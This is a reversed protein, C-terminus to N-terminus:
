SNKGPPIRLARVRSYYRQSSYWHSVTGCVAEDPLSEDIPRDQLWLNWIMTLNIGPKLHGSGLMVLDILPIPMKNLDTLNDLIAPDSSGIVKTPLDTEDGLENFEADQSQKVSSQVFGKVPDFSQYHTEAVSKVVGGAYLKKYDKIQNEATNDDFAYEQADDESEAFEAMTKIKFIGRDYYAILGHERIIKRFLSAPINGEVLTYDRRIMDDGGECDADFIHKFIDAISSKEKEWRVSKGVPCRMKARYLNKQICNVKLVSNIVPMSIVRFVHPEPEFYDDNYPDTLIVNLEAGVKLRIDDRIYSNRDHFSMIMQPGSLDPFEIYTLENAMSLDLQPPDAEDYSVSQVLYKQEELQTTM